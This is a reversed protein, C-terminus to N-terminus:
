SLAFSAQSPLTGISPDSVGLRTAFITFAPLDGDLAAKVEDLPEMDFPIPVVSPPM